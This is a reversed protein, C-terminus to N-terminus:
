GKLSVSDLVRCADMYCDTEPQGRKQISNAPILEWPIRQKSTIVHFLGNNILSNVNYFDSQHPQRYETPRVDKGSLIAARSLGMEALSVGSPVPHDFRSAYITQFDEASSEIWREGEKFSKTYDSMTTMIENWSSEDEHLLTIATLMAGADSLFSQKQLRGKYFSHVLSTGNWFIDLLKRILQSGKDELEPKGLLRGSQILAIAVLANTGCLIKEDKSPQPRRKRISLLKAEIEDIRNDNKRILHNLGEFNGQETISYVELFRKYEEQNLSSKLEEQKWLYTAGEEHDTDANFASIYLGDEEFCEELCKMIKLAMIRNEDKGTVKYALSYCWLTLAQDYLMKEFHPITWERNVCYRFIGGQLHDNLGRLRISDLTNTCIARISEDEKASLLYLLFLLTSHPPFKQGTGFGGNDKDYYSKLAEVLTSEEAASPEEEDSVFPSIDNGKVDFYVKVRKAIDLFSMGRGNQKAPAYTIAFVPRQDPTLFVNLPWGGNGNQTMIFRMMFQDIDPRQERDVKICIFNENLYEATEEDSFAEAAMVHCWHCTSYGVSVFLLKNEKIALQLIESSWEQWWIPNGSHQLLYPSSSKGLNNQKYNVTEM